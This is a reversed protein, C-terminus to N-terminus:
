EEGRAEEVQVVDQGERLHLWPSQARPPATPSSPVADPQLADHRAGRRGDEAGDADGGKKPTRKQLVEQRGGGRGDWGLRDM